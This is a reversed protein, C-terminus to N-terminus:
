SNRGPGLTRCQSTGTSTVRYLVGSVVVSGAPALWDRGSCGAGTFKTAGVTATYTSGSLTINAETSASGNVSSFYCSTGADAVGPDLVMGALVMAAVAFLRVVKMVSGWRPQERVGSPTMSCHHRNSARPTRVQRARGRM